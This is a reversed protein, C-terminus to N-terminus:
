KLKSAYSDVIEASKLRKEANELRGSSPPPSGPPTYHARKSATSVVSIVSEVSGARSRSHLPPSIDGRSLHFSQVSVVNSTTPVTKQEAFQHKRRLSRKKRNSIYHAGTSLHARTCGAKNCIPLTNLFSLCHECNRKKCTFPFPVSRKAIGGNVYKISGPSRSPSAALPVQKVAIHEVNRVAQKEVTTKPRVGSSEELSLEQVLDVVQSLHGSSIQGSAVDQKITYNPFHFHNNYIPRKSTSQKLNSIFTTLLELLIPAPNQEIKRRKLEDSFASVYSLLTPQTLTIRRLRLSSHIDNVATDHFRSRLLALFNDLQLHVLSM